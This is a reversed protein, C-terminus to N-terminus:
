LQWSSWIFSPRQPHSNHFASNQPLSACHGVDLLTEMDNDIKNCYGDTTEDIELDQSYIETKIKSFREKGLRSNLQTNTKEWWLLHKSTKLLHGKTLSGQPRPTSLHSNYVTSCKSRKNPSFEARQRGKSHIHPYLKLYFDANESYRKMGVQVYGM